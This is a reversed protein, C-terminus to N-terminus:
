SCGVLGTWDDLRSVGALSDLHRVLLELVRLRPTSLALGPPPIIVTTRARVVQIMYLAGGVHLHTSAVRITTFAVGLKDPM